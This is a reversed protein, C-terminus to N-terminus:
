ISATYPAVLNAVATATIQDGGYAVNTTTVLRSFFAVVKERYPVEVLASMSSPLMSRSAYQAGNITFSSSTTTTRPIAQCQMIGVRESTTLSQLPGADKYILVVGSYIGEATSLPAWIGSAFHVDWYGSFITFKDASIVETPTNATTAFSSDIHGELSSRKSLIWNFIWDTSSTPANIKATFIYAFKSNHAYNIVSNDSAKFCFSTTSYYDSSDSPEFTFVFKEGAVIGTSPLTVDFGDTYTLIQHRKDSSTLTVNTTATNINAIDNVEIQSWVDSSNVWKSNAYDYQLLEKDALTGLNVDTLSSLAGGPVTSNVWKSSNGDYLLTEGDQVSTINTDTLNDISNAQNIWKSGDYTLADGSSASTITTDTLNDISNEQNIWKSGDYTLADGSSASTITTDTLNEVSNEQNVWKSGDYTLADGSSASTITTDTLNDISNETNVWKTGNFTLADGSSASTITTDTLNDLSDEKNVWKTGDYSLTDGQAISTITVNKLNDVTNPLNIWESNVGDYVLTDDGSPTPVNTDDLNSITTQHPNATDSTHTTLANSVNGINTNLTSTGFALDLKSEAIKDAVQSSVHNNTVVGAKIDLGSTTALIDGQANTDTTVGVGGVDGVLIENANMTPVEIREDWYSTNTPDNNLLTGPPDNPDTSPINAVNDLICIYISGNYTCVSDVYYDATRSYEPIGQQLLYSGNYSNVYNVANMDEVFPATYPAQSVVAGNWGEEWHTGLGTIDDPNTSTTPTENQQGSGFVGINTASSGFLKGNPRNLKAM